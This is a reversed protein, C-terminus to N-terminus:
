YMKKKAAKPLLTGTHLPEEQKNPPHVTNVQGNGTPIRKHTYM